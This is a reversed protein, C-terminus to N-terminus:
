VIIRVGFRNAVGDRENTGLTADARRCQAVVNSPRHRFGHLRVDDDGVEIQCKLFEPSIQGDLESLCQEILPESADTLEMTEIDVLLYEEEIGITFEPDDMVDPHARSQAISLDTKEFTM